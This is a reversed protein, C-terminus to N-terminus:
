NHTVDSLSECKKNKSGDGYRSAFSANNRPRKELGIARIYQIVTFLVTICFLFSINARGKMLRSGMSVFFHGLVM